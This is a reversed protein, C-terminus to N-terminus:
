NMLNQQSLIFSVDLETDSEPLGLLGGKSGEETEDEMKESNESQKLNSSPMAPKERLVYSRSSAGFRIVSDVQVQTPKQPELRITGIFTGHASCPCFWLYSFHLLLTFSGHYKTYQTPKLKETEM